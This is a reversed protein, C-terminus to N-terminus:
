YKILVNEVFYISAHYKCRIKLNKVVINAIRNHNTNILNNLSIQSNTLM